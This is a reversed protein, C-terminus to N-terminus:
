VGAEADGFVAFPMAVVVTQRLVDVYNNGPQV